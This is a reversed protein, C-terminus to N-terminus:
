AGLARPLQDQTENSRLLCGCPYRDQLATRLPSLSRRVNPGIIACIFALEGRAFRQNRMV